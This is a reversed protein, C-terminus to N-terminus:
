GEGSQEVEIYKKVLALIADSWEKDTMTLPDLKLRRIDNMVGKMIRIRQVTRDLEPFVFGRPCRSNGCFQHNGARNSPQHRSKHDVERRIKFLRQGKPAEHTV